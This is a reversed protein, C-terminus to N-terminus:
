NRRIKDFEEKDENKENLVHIAEKIVSPIPVGMLGVNEVISIVESTMFAIITAHTLFNSNLLISDIINAVLVLLLVMVKRVIGKYSYGSDLGTANVKKSTKFVGALILGTAFDIIMLLLLNFFAGDWGGVEKAILAGVTGITAIFLTKM